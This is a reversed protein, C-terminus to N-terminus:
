VAWTRAWASRVVMGLAIPLMGLTAFVICLLKAFIEGWDRRRKRRRPPPPLRTSERDVEMPPSGQALVVGEGPQVSRPPTVQVRAGPPGLPGIEPTNKHCM